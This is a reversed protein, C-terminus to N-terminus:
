TMEVHKLWNLQNVSKNKHFVVCCRAANKRRKGYAEMYPILHHYLHYVTLSLYIVMNNM